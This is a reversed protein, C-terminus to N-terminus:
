PCEILHKPVFWSEDANRLHEDINVLNTLAIGFDYCWGHELIRKILQQGIAKGLHENAFAFVVEGNGNQIQWRTRHRGNSFAISPQGDVMTMYGVGCLFGIPKRDTSYRTFWAAKAHPIDRDIYDQHRKWLADFRDRDAVVPTWAASQVDIRM